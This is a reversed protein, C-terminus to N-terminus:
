RSRVYREIAKRAAELQGSTTATTKLRLSVCFGQRLRSYVRLSDPPECEARDEGESWAASSIDTLFPFANRIREAMELLERKHHHDALRIKCEGAYPLPLSEVEELIQLVMQGLPTRAGDPEILGSDRLLKKAEHGAEKRQLAEILQPLLPLLSIFPLDVLCPRDGKSASLSPHLLENLEHPHDRFRLLHNIDGKEELWPPVWVHFLREAGYLQVALTMLASMVKRGGAISVYLHYGADRYTKLMRCAEQMFSVAAQADAVDWYSQVTVPEVWSISDHNPLHESLLVIAERVDGDATGLLVVGNLTTGQEKLLDVAETVVAPSTGLTSILLKKAM